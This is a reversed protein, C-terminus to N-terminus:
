RGGEQAVPGAQAAPALAARILTAAEDLAIASADYREAREPHHNRCEDAQSRAVEAAADVISACDERVYREAEVPTPAPTDDEIVFPPSERRVIRTATTPAPTLASRSALWALWVRETSLYYYRRGAEGGDHLALLYGAPQAWREFGAVDNSADLAEAVADVGASPPPSPSTSRLRDIERAAAWLASAAAYGETDDPHRTQYLRQAVGPFDHLENSKDTM